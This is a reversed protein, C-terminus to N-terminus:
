GFYHIRATEFKMARIELENLKDFTPSKKLLKTTFSEYRPESFCFSFRERVNVEEM